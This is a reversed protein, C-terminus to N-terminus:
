SVSGSFCVWRSFFMASSIALFIVWVFLTSRTPCSIFSVGRGWLLMLPGSMHMVIFIHKWFRSPMSLGSGGTLGNICYGGRGGGGLCQM